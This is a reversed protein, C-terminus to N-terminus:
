SKPYPASKPQTKKKGKILIEMCKYNLFVIGSFLIVSTVIYAAPFLDDGFIKHLAPIYFLIPISKGAKLAQIPGSVIGVFAAVHLTIMGIISLM